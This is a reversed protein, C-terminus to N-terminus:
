IENNGYAHHFIFSAPSLSDFAEAQGRWLVHPGTAVGKRSGGNAALRSLLTLSLVARARVWLGHKAESRFTRIFLFRM